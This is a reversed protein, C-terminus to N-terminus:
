TLLPDNKPGNFKLKHDMLYSSKFDMVIKLIETAPGIIETSTSRITM